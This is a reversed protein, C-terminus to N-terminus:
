GYHLAFLVTYAIVGSAVVPMWGFRDFWLTAMALEGHVGRAELAFKAPATTLETFADIFAPEYNDENPWLDLALEVRHFTDGDLLVWVYLTM